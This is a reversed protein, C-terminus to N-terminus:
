SHRILCRLSVAASSNSYKVTDKIGAVTGSNEICGINSLTGENNIHKLKTDHVLPFHFWSIM